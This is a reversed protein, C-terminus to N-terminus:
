LYIAHGEEPRDHAQMAGGTSGRGVPPKPQGGYPPFFYTQLWAVGTDWHSMSITDYNYVALQRYLQEDMYNEAWTRSRCQMVFFQAMEGMAGYAAASHHDHELRFNDSDYREYYEFQNKEPHFQTAFFAHQRAEVISIFEVGLRDVNTAVVRWFSDLFPHSHFAAKSFGYSHMHATVNRTTLVTRAAPSLASWLVSDAVTADDALDLRLLLDHADLRDRQVATGNGLFLPPYLIAQEFGLCTGWIPIGRKLLHQMAWFSRSAFFQTPGTPDDILSRGGPFLMGNLQSLVEELKAQPWDYVVPLVRAGAAEIWKVYSALIYSSDSRDVFLRDAPQSLIGIIPVPHSPIRQVDDALASLAAVLLAVLCSPRVFVFM